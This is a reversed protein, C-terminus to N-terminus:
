STDRFLENRTWTRGDAQLWPGEHLTALTPKVPPAAVCVGGGYATPKIMGATDGQAQAPAATKEAPEAVM